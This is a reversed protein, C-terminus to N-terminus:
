GNKKKRRLNFRYPSPLRIKNKCWDNPCRLDDPINEHKFWERCKSCYGMTKYPSEGYKIVEGWGIRTVGLESAMTEITHWAYNYELLEMIKEKDADPYYRRIIDHVYEKDLTM